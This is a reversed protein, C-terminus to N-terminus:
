KQAALERFKKKIRIAGSIVIFSEALIAAGVIMLLKLQAGSVLYSLGFVVLSLALAKVEQKIFWLDETMAFLTILVLDYGYSVAALFLMMPLVFWFEPLIYKKHTLFEIGFSGFLWGGIFLLVGLVALIKWIKNFLLHAKHWHQGDIYQLLGPLVSFMLFTSVLSAVMAIRFSINFSAFQGDTLAQTAFYDPLFRFYLNNIINIIGFPLSVEFIKLCLAGSIKFDWVIQRAAFIFSLIMTVLSGAMIAGFIMFLSSTDLAAPFSKIIFLTAVYQTVRGAVLAITARGMLYNAQLMGDCVSTVYDFILAGFFVMTGLIFVQSAGTLVLYLMGSLFFLLATFIRLVLANLFISGDKPRDAMFRVVNAFIGLNAATSFFLAYESIKAYGGYDGEVLYNSVLKLTLMALVLQVAKGAYQVLTSFAIKRGLLSLGPNPVSFDMSTNQNM